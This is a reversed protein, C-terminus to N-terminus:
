GVDKLSVVIRFGFQVARDAGLVQGIIEDPDETDYGDAIIEAEKRSWIQDVSVGYGEALEARLNLLAQFSKNPRTLLEATVKGGNGGKSAHIDAYNERLLRYGLDTLALAQYKPEVTLRLLKKGLMQQILSSAKTAANECAGFGTYLHLKSALVKPDLEGDLAMRIKARGFRQKTAHVPHLASMELSSLGDVTGQSDICNDCVGCIGMKTESDFHKVLKVARCEVAELYQKIQRLRKDAKAYRTQVVGYDFLAEPNYSAIGMLGPRPGRKLSLINQQELFRLSQEILSPTAEYPSHKAWDLLSVPMSRKEEPWNHLRAFAWAMLEQSPFRNDLLMNQILTDQKAWLVICDSDLGDRGARGAEQVYDEPSSPYGVHVVMRVDPKNIGMGFANTAVIIKVEGSMWQHQYAEREKASLRGHYITVPYGLQLLIGHIREVEKISICYVIASGSSLRKLFRDLHHRRGENSACFVTRYRLNPRDFGGMYIQPHFLNLKNRIDAQVEGTVSASLAMRQIKQKRISALRDLAHGIQAYSFRFDSGWQSVCHAEDVVVMSLPLRRMWFLFKDQTLREPALYVIKYKGQEIERIRQAYEQTSIQSNLLTASVETGAVEDVQDQMLSILPSVVFTVGRMLMAPLQFCLTKGSGTPRVALVDRGDLVASIIEAQGDRFEEYGFYQKLAAKPTM